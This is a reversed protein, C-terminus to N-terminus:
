LVRIDPPPRRRGRLDPRAGGAQTADAGHSQSLSQEPERQGPQQAQTRGGERLALKAHADGGGIGGQLGIDLGIHTAEALPVLRRQLTEAAIGLCLRFLRGLREAVELRLDVALHLVALRRLERELYHGALGHAQALHIDLHEALGGAQLAEAQRRALLQFRARLQVLADVLVGLPQDLVLGRAVAEELAAEAGLAQADIRAGADGVDVQDVVAALAVGEALHAEVAVRDDLFFQQAAHHRELGALGIVGFQDGFEVLVQLGAAVELAHPDVGRRGLRLSVARALRDRYRDPQLRALGPGHADAETERGVDPRARPEVPGAMPHIGFSMAQSELRFDGCWPLVDAGPVLNGEIRREGVLQAEGAAVLEFVQHVGLALQQGKAAFPM